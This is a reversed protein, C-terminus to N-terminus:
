ALGKEILELFATAAASLRNHRLYACGVARPPLPPNVNLERIEGRNLADQSFERVVCAVGLHISAFRILLDHVAVEIQPTLTIHRAAFQEDLHRRSNSHTELLMLPHKALENWSYKDKAEFDAGCVFVDHVEFCPRITLEDDEVPLNVFALEARGEKVQALM